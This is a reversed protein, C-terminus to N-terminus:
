LMRPDLEVGMSEALEEAYNMAEFNLHSTVDNYEDKMHKSNSIFYNVGSNRSKPLHTSSNPDREKPTRDDVSQMIVKYRCDEDSLQGKFVPSAATLALMIPGLM